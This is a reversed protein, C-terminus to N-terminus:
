RMIRGYEDLLRGYEGIDIKKEDYLRKFYTTGDEEQFSQKLFADLNAGIGPKEIEVTASEPMGKRIVILDGVLSKLTFSRKMETHYLWEYLLTRIRSLSEPNLGRLTMRSGPLMEKLDILIGEIEKYREPNFKTPYSM